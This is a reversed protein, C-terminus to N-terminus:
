KRLYLLFLEVHYGLKEEASAAAAEAEEKTGAAAAQEENLTSNKKRRKGPVAAKGVCEAEAVERVAETEEASTGFTPIGLPEAAPM